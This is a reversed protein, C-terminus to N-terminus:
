MLIAVPMDHNIKNPVQEGYMVGYETFDVVNGAIIADQLRKQLSPTARKVLHHKASIIPPLCSPGLLAQNWMDFGGPRHLARQADDHQRDCASSSPSSECSSGLSAQDFDFVGTPSPPRDDHARANKSGVNAPVAAYCNNLMLQQMQELLLKSAESDGQASSEQAAAVLRLLEEQNSPRPRRQAQLRSGSRVDAVKKEPREGCLGAVEGVPKQRRPAAVESVPDKRRANAVESVPKELRPDVQPRQGQGDVDPAKRAAKAAAASERGYVRRLGVEDPADSLYASQWGAPGRPPPPDDTLVVEDTMGHFQEKMVHAARLSTVTAFYHPGLAADSPLQLIARGGNAQTAKGVTVGTTSNYLKVSVAPIFPLGVTAWRVVAERSSRYIKVPKLQLNFSGRQMVSFRGSEVTQAGTSVTAWCAYAADNAQDTVCRPPLAPLELEAQGANRLTSQAAVVVARSTREAPQCYVCVDVSASRTGGQWEVVLSDGWHLAGAPTAVQL